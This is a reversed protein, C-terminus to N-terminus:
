KSLDKKDELAKTLLRNVVSSLSRDDEEAIKDLKKKLEDSARFTVIIEKRNKM